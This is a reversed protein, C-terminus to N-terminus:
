REREREGKEREREHLQIYTYMFVQIYICTYIYINTYMNVYIYIHMNIHLGLVQKIQPGGRCFLFTFVLSTSLKSAGQGEVSRSRLGGRDEQLFVLLLLLLLLLFLLLLKFCWSGRCFYTGNTHDRKENQDQSTHPLCPLPYGLLSHFFLNQLLCAYLFATLLLLFYNLLFKM